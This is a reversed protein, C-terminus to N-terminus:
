RAALIATVTTNRYAGTIEGIADHIEACLHISRHWPQRTSETVGRGRRLGSSSKISQMLLQQM